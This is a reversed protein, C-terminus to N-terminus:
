DHNLENVNVNVDLEDAIIYINNNLFNVQFSRQNSLKSIQLLKPQAAGTKKLELSHLFTNFNVPIYSHEALIWYEESMYLVHEIEHFVSKIKVFLKQKYLNGNFKLSHIIEANKNKNLDTPIIELYKESAENCEYLMKRKKSAVINDSYTFSACLFEKQHRTAMTKMINVFNNTRKAINTFYQHKSEARMMWMNRLPGMARLFTPYHVINHHKATLNKGSITKVNMLFTPTLGELNIIDDYAMSHSFVIQLIRLLLLMTNWETTSSLENKYEHLIYPIHWVLCYLKSASLGFNKKKSSFSVNTPLHDKNLTGYNYFNIRDELREKTIIKKKIVYSLILNITHPIVGHNMDHMIDMCYNRSIHYNNLENLVCYFKVGKSIKLDLKSASNVYEIADQYKDITRFRSKNEVVATDIETKTFDCMRCFNGAIFCETLGFCTNAGLNDSCLSVLTGKLHIGCDAGVMIGDGELIKIESVIMELVKNHGERSNKLDKANSLSILYMNDPRSLYKLPLNLFRCYYACIKYVGANSQLPSCVDFDDTFLQIQLADPNNQFFASNKFNQGCCYKEIRSEHCVHERNTKFYLDMFDKQMFLSKIVSIISVYQSEAQILIPVNEQTIPDIKSQWLLGISRPVSTVYRPHSKIESERRYESKNKNFRSIIFNSSEEVIEIAIGKAQGFQEDNMYHNIKKKTFEAQTKLLEIVLRYIEDKNTINTALTHLFKHFNDFFTNLDNMSSGQISLTNKIPEVNPLNNAGIITIKNGFRSIVEM